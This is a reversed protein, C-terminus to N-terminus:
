EDTAAEQKGPFGSNEEAEMCTPCTATHPRSAVRVDRDDLDLGCFTRGSDVPARHWLIAAEDGM